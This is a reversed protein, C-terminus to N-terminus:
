SVGAKPFGSRGWSPMTFVVPSGALVVIVPGRFGTSSLWNGLAIVAGAVSM